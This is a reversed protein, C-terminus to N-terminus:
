LGGEGGGEVRGGEESAVEGERRAKAGEGECRRRCDSGHNSGNRKVFSALLRPGQNMATSFTSGPM